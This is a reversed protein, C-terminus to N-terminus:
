QPKSGSSSSGASSGNASSTGSPGASPPTSNAPKPRIPEQVGPQRQSPKGSEDLYTSVQARPRVMAITIQREAEGITYDDAFTSFGTAIVQIRVKSGTPIVDIKAKGDPDTKMELFGEDKGDSDVPHFIVAANVIPKQNFGKIVTVEINSTEPPAKYKRGHKEPKASDDQARAPKSALTLLLAVSTVLCVLVTRRRLQRSLM